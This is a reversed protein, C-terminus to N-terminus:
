RPPLSTPLGATKCKYSAATEIASLLMAVVILGDDSTTLSDRESIHSRPPKGWGFQRWAWRGAARLSVVVLALAPFLFLIFLAFAQLPSTVDPVGEAYATVGATTGDMKVTRNTLSTGTGIRDM